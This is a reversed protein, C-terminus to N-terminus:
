KVSIKLKQTSAVSFFIFDHSSTSSTISFYIIGVIQSMVVLLFYL